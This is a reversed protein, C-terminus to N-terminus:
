LTSCFLRYYFKLKACEDFFYLINRIIYFYLTICGSLAINNDLKRVLTFEAVELNGSQTLFIEFINFWTNLKQSNEKREIISYRQEKNQFTAWNFYFHFYVINSPKKSSNSLISSCVFVHVLTFSFSTFTFRALLFCLWANIVEVFPYLHFYAVCDNQRMTHTSAHM